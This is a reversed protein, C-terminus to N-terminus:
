RYNAKIKGWTTPETATPPTGSYLKFAADWGAWGPVSSFVSIPTWAADAPYNNWADWIMAECNSIGLGTFARWFMQSYPNAPTASNPDLTFDFDPSVSVWYWTNATPFFAVPLTVCYAYHRSLGTTVNWTVFNTCYQSYVSTGIAAEGLVSGDPCWPLEGVLAAEYFKVTFGHLMPTPTDGTYGLDVANANVRAWIKVDTIPDNTIAIFDDAGLRCASAFSIGTTDANIMCGASFATAVGTPPTFTDYMGSDWVVNTPTCEGSPGTRPGTPGTHDTGDTVPVAALVPLAMILLGMAAIAFVKRM